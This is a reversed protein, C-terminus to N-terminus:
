NIRRNVVEVIAGVVKNLFKDIIINPIHITNFDDGESFHNRKFDREIEKPDTFHQLGDIEIFIGAKLIAIDVHKHGDWYELEGQIGRKNLAEYLARTQKTIPPKKNKQQM